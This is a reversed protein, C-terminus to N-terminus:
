RGTFGASLTATQELAQSGTAVGPEIQTDEYWENWSTVLMWDPQGSLAANWTDAYRQGNDRSIVPNTTGRLRHDDFGPSATGAFLKADGDGVVAAAKAEAGTRQAWAEDKSVTDTVSYRHLGWEFPLYAADTADGVLDVHEGYQVALDTLIVKWQLPTFRGMQYVFVVPTGDSARLFAGSNPGSKVHALLQHLWVEETGATGAQISELYGTVVQGNEAAAQQTLAFQSGRNAEGDWSVVFGDIGHAKAQATMSEVGALDTTSRPNQPTDALTSQGYWSFWPYYFALVLHRSDASPLRLPSSTMVTSAPVRISARNLPDVLSHVSDTFPASTVPASGNLNAVAVSANGFYGKDVTVTYSAAASPDSLVLDEVVWSVNRGTGGRLAVGGPATAWTGVGGSSTIHSAMVDGPSIHVSVWDSNTFVKLQLHAVTVPSAAATGARTLAGATATMGAILVATAAALGARRALTNMGTEEDKSLDASFRVRGVKESSPSLFWGNM